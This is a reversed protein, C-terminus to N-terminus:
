SQNVWIWLVPIFAWIMGAFTFLCAALNFVFRDENNM